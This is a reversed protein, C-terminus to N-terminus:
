KDKDRGEFVPRDWEETYNQKPVLLANDPDDTPGHFAFENIPHSITDDSPSLLEWKSGVAFGAFTNMNHTPGEVVPFRKEMCDHLMEQLKSKKGKPVLGRCKTEAKLDSVNLKDIAGKTM